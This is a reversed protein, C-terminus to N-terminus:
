EESCPQNALEIYATVFDNTAQDQIPQNRAMLAQGRVYKGSAQDKAMSVTVYPKEVENRKRIFFVIIEGNVISNVYGGVCHRQTTGETVIEEATKPFVVILEENSFSPMSNAVQEILLNKSSALLEEVIQRQNRFMAIDDPFIEIEVARIKRVRNINSWFSALSSSIRYIRTGNLQAIEKNFKISYDMLKKFTFKLGNDEFDKKYQHITAVNKVFNELDYVTFNANEDVCEINNEKLLFLFLDKYSIKKNNKQAYKIYGKPLENFPPLKEYEMSLNLLPLYSFYPEDQTLAKIAGAVSERFGRGYCNKNARTYFLLTLPDANEHLHIRLEYNRAIIPKKLLGIFVQQGLDITYFKAESIYLRFCQKEKVVKIIELEKM